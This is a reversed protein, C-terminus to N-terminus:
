PRGEDIWARVEDRTIRVGRDRLQQRFQMTEEMVRRRDATLEPAAALLRYDRGGVTIVVQEGADMAATLEAANVQLDALPVHRM